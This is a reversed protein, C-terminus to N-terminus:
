LPGQEEGDSGDVDSHCDDPDGRLHGPNRGELGREVDHELLSFLTKKEDHVQPEVQVKQVQNSKAQDGVAQALIPPQQVEVDGDHQKGGRHITKEQAKQAQWVWVQSNRGKEKKKKRKKEEQKM